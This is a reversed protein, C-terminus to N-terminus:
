KSKSNQINNRIEGGCNTPRIRGGASINSNRIKSIMINRYHYAAVGFAVSVNLSNKIEGNMEIEIAADCLPLLDEGVGQIENGLVLCVPTEPQFDQYPVSQHAQELMVIQYGQEKLRRICDGASQVYEWPVANEAGLATKSIGGAPPFGTIGCLWLKEIGVGDATRFISGVNYLSRINNLLVCFPLREKSLIRQRALLEPHTLKQM